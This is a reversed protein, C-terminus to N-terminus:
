GVGRAMERLDARILKGVSNRPLRDVLTVHAPLQHASLRERSWTTLEQDTTVVGPALVVFATGVQDAGSGAVAAVGADAVGPHSLLVREV